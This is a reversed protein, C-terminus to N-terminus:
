LRLYFSLLHWRNDLLDTNEYVFAYNLFFERHAFHDEFGHLANGDFLGIGVSFVNDDNNRRFIGGRVAIHGFLVQELGFHFERVALNQEEGLNRVDLSFLTGAVPRYSIGVNVSEDVFREVPLRFAELSDPLNIFSVGINLGKEPKLLIGYSIAVDTHTDDPNGSKSGYLFHAVGGISVKDALAVRAVFSHAHNQRFGKARFVEDSVASAPLNLGQEGLLLGFTLNNMSFSVAKLLLSLSLLVDDFRDGKGSFLDDRKAAGAFPSVPNLFFTFRGKKPFSYLQFAAPNFQIAALDDEVSTFAGGMALPRAKVTSLTFFQTGQGQGLGPLFFLVSLLALIPNRM